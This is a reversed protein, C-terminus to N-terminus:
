GFILKNELSIRCNQPTHKKEGGHEKAVGLWKICRLVFSAATRSLYKVM